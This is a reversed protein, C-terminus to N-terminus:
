KSIVEKKDVKGLMKGDSIIIEIENGIEVQNLRKIIEKGPIKRCISYGREIVAGPNLSDLRQKDKKIKEEYLEIQHKIRLKIRVSFEDIYQYYQNIKNEPGQYQISKNISNINEVKLELNRKIAKNLKSNLLNLNNVLSSKDPITMEAAASPTPCRLDAVFDSITFDTEHGIASVIPIKSNYISRALIEENFAWLEELSGGGRSLIIFDLNNFHKNLFDIKKAIERAALTGQVLSPVVLISLNPFRRLSITLVDRIAAGTPSTIVAINKPILPLKKKFEESFLGEAKLKEKLREFALYLEGKGAEVIEKVYLQYEGRREYVNIDGRVKVKMGDQPMFRLSLNNGKFMVGKIQSEQDKLVFYMHGSSHLKFNSIEGLIWVNQLNYDNEFLNKIYKTIRSVTYIKAETYNVM